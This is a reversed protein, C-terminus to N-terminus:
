EKWYSVVTQVYKMLTHMIPKDVFLALVFIVENVFLFHVLFHSLSAKCPEPFIIQTKCLAALKVHICQPVSYRM